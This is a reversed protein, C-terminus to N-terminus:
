ETRLADMPDMRAARRAPLLAAALSTAVLVLAAAGLVRPDLPQVEFVLAAVLRGTWLAAVAGAVIGVAGVFAVDRLVLTTINSRSAGLAMRVGIEATRRTVEYALRGYVGVAALVLALLGFGFSLAAILRDRDLTRDLLERASDISVIRLATDESRITARLDAAIAKPRLTSRVVFRTTFHDNEAQLAPIYFSRRPPRRVDYWVNRALGVIQYAKRDKGDGRYINRGVANKGAFFHNAFEQNVIAVKPAAAHDSEAFDRGAVLPTGLTTFYRPGVQDYFAVREPGSASQFGDAEIVVNSNRTTYVGQGSFSGAKVGPLCLLRNLVRSNLRMQDAGRYGAERADVDVVILHRREVGTDFQTLRYLSFAFLFAAAVLPLSLAFQLSTIAQGLKKRVPTAATARSTQQLAPALERRTARLAPVIGCVLAAAVSLGFVFLLMTSDIRLDLQVPSGAQSILSVLAAAAPHSVALGLLGGTLAIVMAEILLQRVIRMRGAGIALRVSLERRREDARAFQLSMINVCILLLGTGVMAFVVRLPKSFRARLASLGKAAPTLTLKSKEIDARIWDPLGPGARELDTRVALPTLASAAREPSVGPRLRGLLSLFSTSPRDLWQRGPYVHPLTTLPVWVDAAQEVRVGFFERPAVGVITFPVKQIRLTRGVVSSDAAFARRWYGYSIVAVFAPSGRRDDEAQITRGLLPPVGLLPFYNGSVLEAYGRQPEGGADLDRAEARMTALVGELWESSNAQFRGFAFYSGGSSFNVLREPEHVPLTRVMVTDILSFIAATAGIGLGLTVVAVASFSPRRILVRFAYRVDGVVGNLPRWGWVARAEDAALALSGLERRGAIATLSDLEEQMDREAERRHSPLLFKLRRWMSM